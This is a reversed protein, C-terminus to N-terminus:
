RSPSPSPEEPQDRLRRHGDAHGVDHLALVAELDDGVVAQVWEGALFSAAPMGDAVVAVVSLDDGAAEIALVGSSRRRSAPRDVVALKEGAGPERQLAAVEAGGGGIAVGPEHVPVDVGGDSVDREASESGIVEVPEVLPGGGGATSVSVTQSGLGHM